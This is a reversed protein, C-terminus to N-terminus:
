GGRWGRERGGKGEEVGCTRGKEGEVRGGDKKEKEGERGFDRLFNESKLLQVKKKRLNEQLSRSIVNRTTQARDPDFLDDDTVNQRDPTM